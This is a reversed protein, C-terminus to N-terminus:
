TVLQTNPLTNVACANRQQYEKKLVAVRQLTTGPSMQLITAQLELATDKAKETGPQEEARKSPVPVFERWVRM